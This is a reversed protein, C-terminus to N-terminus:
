SAESSCSSRKTRSWMQSTAWPLLGSCLSPRDCTSRKKELRWDRQVKGSVSMFRQPISTICNYLAERRKGSALEDYDIIESLLIGSLMNFTGISMGLLVVGALGTYAMIHSFM